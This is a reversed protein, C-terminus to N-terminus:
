AGGRGRTLRERAAATAELLRLSLPGAGPRQVCSKSEIAFQEPGRVGHRCIMSRERFTKRLHADESTMVVRVPIIM